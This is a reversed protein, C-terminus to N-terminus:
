NNFTALFRLEQRVRATIIFFACVNALPQAMWVGNLGFVLPLLYIFPIIFFFQRTLLLIMATLGKGLGNFMYIWVVVPGVLVQTSVYIRLAPVAVALLAQDGTFAALISRSFLEVALCTTGGLMVSFWMAVNVVERLRAHKGAGFCYGVIPMVGHGIGFLLMMLLGNIRFSLGLTAVALASFTGLKHNYVTLVLSMVIHIVFSPLGVQYISKIVSWRLLLHPWRVKYKSHHFFLYYCSLFITACQSIVTALAAGAIEMRPFPGWGFILFPDLIMNLLSSSMIVFMPAYPSGEARFLNDTMMMFFLFPAGFIIITLYQRSLPLIEPTAGFVHLISDSFLSGGMIVLIGLLAALSIVHGAIQQAQDEDGKGFMRAACSGAGVGTGFGIAGFIMQIPFCITLAAVAHSSLRAIWFTDIINYLSTILMAAMSPLSMRLLLPIIPDNGLDLKKKAAISEMVQGEIIHSRLVHRAGGPVV